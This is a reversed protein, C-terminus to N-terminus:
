AQLLRLLGMQPDKLRVPLRLLFVASAASVPEPFVSFFSPADVRTQPRGPLIYM